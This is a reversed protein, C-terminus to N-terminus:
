KSPRQTNGDTNHSSIQCEGSQYVFLGLSTIFFGRHPSVINWTLKFYRITIPNEDIRQYVKFKIHQM